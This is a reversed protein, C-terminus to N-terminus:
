YLDDDSDSDEYFNVKYYQKSSSATPILLNNKNRPDNRLHYNQPAKGGGQRVMVSEVSSNARVRSINAIKDNVVKVIFDFNMYNFPKDVEKEKGDIIENIKAFLSGNKVFALDISTIVNKKSINIIDQTLHLKFCPVYNLLELKKRLSEIEQKPEYHIFNALTETLIKDKLKVIGGNKKLNICASCSAGTYIMFVYKGSNRRQNKAIKLENM